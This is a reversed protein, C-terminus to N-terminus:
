DDSQPEHIERVEGVTLGYREVAAKLLAYLAHANSAGPKVYLRVDFRRWASASPPPQPKRHPPSTKRATKRPFEPQPLRPARDNKGPGPTTSLPAPGDRKRPM